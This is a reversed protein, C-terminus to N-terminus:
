CTSFPFLILHKTKTKYIIIYAHGPNLCFIVMKIRSGNNFSIIFSHFTWLHAEAFTYKLCRKRIVHVIKMQFFFLLNFQKVSLFLLYLDLVFQIMKQDKLCKQITSNHEFTFTVYRSHM